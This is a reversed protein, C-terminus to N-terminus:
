RSGGAPAFLEAPEPFARLALPYVIAAVLGAVLFGLDLGGFLEAGPSTFWENNTFLLGAAFSLAWVGVGV